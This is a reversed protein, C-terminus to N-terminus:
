RGGACSFLADLLLDFVQLPHSLQGARLRQQESQGSDIRSPAINGLQRTSLANTLLQCGTHQSQPM